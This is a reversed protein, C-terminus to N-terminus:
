RFVIVDELSIDSGQSGPYPEGLVVIRLTHPGAPLKFAHWVAEGYKRNEEDPYVDITKHLQGDLYVDAKGGAPLYPGTLIAGTGDFTVSAESGKTSSIKGPWKTERRDAVTEDKWSGKWSWRADTVPIREAPSGYDEWVEIAPPVPIQVKAVLNDGDVRGGHKKVMEIARKETSEVIGRFTFNTFNFKQGAIAPIGSKWDDPIKKYGLVVGM